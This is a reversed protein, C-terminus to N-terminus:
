SQFIVLSIPFHSVQELYSSKQFVARSHTHKGFSHPPLLRAKTQKGKLFTFIKIKNNASNFAWKRELIANLNRHFIAVLKLCEATAKQKKAGLEIGFM